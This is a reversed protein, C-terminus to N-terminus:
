NYNRTYKEGEILFKPQTGDDIKFKTKLTNRGDLTQIFIVLHLHPGSSWGTNGSQGIIQNQKVTDGIKVKVSNQKLHVYEAFTGDDHYILVLNNFKQCEEKPCNRTNNEVVKVVVGARAAVVNTGIPMTFDLANENQHSFEGNYGQSLKFTNENQFPLIYEFDNDYVKLNHDGYNYRTNSNFGYKGKKIVKLTTLKNGKSNAPLLFVQNNGNSSKLNRLEFKVRISVPCNELNDAFYEYGNEIPKNYTKVKIQASSLQLIVGAILTLVAKKM